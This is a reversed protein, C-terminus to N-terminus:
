TESERGAEEGGGCPPPQPHLSRPSQLSPMGMRPHEWGTLEAPKSDDPERRPDEQSGARPVPLSKPKVDAGGFHPVCLASSSGQTQRTGLSAVARGHLGLGRSEHDFGRSGAKGPLQIAEAEGRRGRLSWVATQTQQPLCM